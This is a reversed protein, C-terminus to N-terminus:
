TQRGCVTGSVADLIYNGPDPVQVMRWDPGWISISWEQDRHGAIHIIVSDKFIIIGM